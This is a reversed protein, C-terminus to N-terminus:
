GGRSQSLLDPYDAARGEIQATAAETMDDTDFM